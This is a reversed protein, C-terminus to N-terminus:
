TFSILGPNASGAVDEGKTTAGGNAQQRMETLMQRTRRYTPSNEVALIVDENDLDEPKFIFIQPHRRYVRHTGSNGYYHDRRDQRDAARDEEEAAAKADQESRRVRAEEPEVDQM